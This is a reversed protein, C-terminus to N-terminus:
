IDDKIITETEYPLCVSCYVLTPHIHVENPTGSKMDKEKEMVTINM